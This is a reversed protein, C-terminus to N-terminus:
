SMHLLVCYHYVEFSKPLLFSIIYMIGVAKVVMGSLLADTLAYICCCLVVIGLRIGVHMGFACHSFGTM